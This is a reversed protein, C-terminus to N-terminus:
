LYFNLSIQLSVFSIHSFFKHINKIKREEKLIIKNNNWNRLYKKFFRNESITSSVFGFLTQNSMKQRKVLGHPQICVENVFPMIDKIKKKPIVKFNLGAMVNIIWALFFAM